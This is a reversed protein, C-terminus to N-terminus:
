CAMEGGHVYLLMFALLVAPVARTAASEPQYASSTPKIRRKPKGKEEFTTLLYFCCYCWVTNFFLLFDTKKFGKDIFQSQLISHM